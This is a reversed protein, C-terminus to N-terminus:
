RPETDLDSFIQTKIQRMIEAMLAAADMVHPARYFVIPEKFSPHRVLAVAVEVGEKECAEGFGNMLREFTAAFIDQRNDEIESNNNDKLDIKQDIQLNSDLPRNKDTM